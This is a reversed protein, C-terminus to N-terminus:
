FFGTIKVKSKAVRMIFHDRNWLYLMLSYPDMEHLYSLDITEEIRITKWKGPRAAKLSDTPFDFSEWLVRKGMKGRLDFIVVPGKGSISRTTMFDVLVEVKLLRFKSNLPVRSFFNKWEWTSDGPDFPLFKPIKITDGTLVKGFYM